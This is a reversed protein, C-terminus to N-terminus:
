AVKSGVWSNGAGTSFCIAVEGQGVTLTGGNINTIVIDQGADTNKLIILQSPGAADPLTVRDTNAASANINQLFGSDLATAGPNPTAAVGVNGSYLAGSVKASGAIVTGSGAEILLGQTDNFTTKPM